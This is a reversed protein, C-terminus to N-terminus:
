KLSSFKQVRYLYKNLSSQLSILVKSRLPLNMGWSFTYVNKGYSSFSGGLYQSYAKIRDPINEFSEKIEQMKEKDAKPINCPHQQRIKIVTNQDLSKDLRDMLVHALQIQDEASMKSPLTLYEPFLENAKSEGLIEKISRYIQYFKFIM